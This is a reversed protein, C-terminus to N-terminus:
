YIEKYKKIKTRFPNFLMHVFKKFYYIDKEDIFILSRATIKYASNIKEIIGKKQLFSFTEAFVVSLALGVGGYFYTLFLGFLILVTLTYIMSILYEKQKRYSFLISKQSISVGYILTTLSLLQAM